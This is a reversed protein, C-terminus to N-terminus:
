LKIIKYFEEDDYLKYLKKSLESIEKAVKIFDGININKFKLLAWTKDEFIIKSVNTNHKVLLNKFDKLQSLSLTLNFFKFYKIFCFIIM